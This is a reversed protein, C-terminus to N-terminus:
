GLGAGGRRRGRWRTRRARSSGSGSPRCWRRRPPAARSGPRAPPPRLWRVLAAGSAIVVVGYIGLPGSARPGFAVEAIGSAVAFDRVALSLIVAARAGPDVIRGTAIATATTLCIFAAIAATAGVYARSPHIQSAVLEVLLLVIAISAVSVVQAPSRARRGVPRLFLGLVMPIGVILALEVVTSTADVGSGALVGLVPGAIAVTVATSAVLLAAAVAPDGGALGAMALTAIEAPAVGLALVGHRLEADAVLHSALWAALVSFATGLVLVAALRLLGRRLRQIIGAEVALASILVLLFLLVPVAHHGVLWRGARPLVLGLAGALIVGIAFRDELTAALRHVTTM